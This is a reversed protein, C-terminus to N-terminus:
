RMAIMWIPVMVEPFGEQKQVDLVELGAKQIIGKMIDLHRIISSDVPDLKCGQRAMNDKIVIVGNKRLSGKCRILFDMLDKDTLHGAFVLTPCPLSVFTTITM